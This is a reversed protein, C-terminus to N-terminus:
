VYGNSDIKGPPIHALIDQWNTGDAYEVVARCKILTTTERLKRGDELREDMIRKLNQENM